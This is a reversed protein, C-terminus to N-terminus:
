GFGGGLPLCCAEETTTYGGISSCCGGIADCSRKRFTAGEMVGATKGKVEFSAIGQTGFSM